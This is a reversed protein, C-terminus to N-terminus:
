RPSSTGVRARSEDLVDRLTRELPIEPQWGTLAQIKGADGWTRPQSNPRFRAPDVSQVIRVPSMAILGDLISQISQTKGSAVNYVQGPEGKAMIQVYARVVDRVDTFDRESSLNGVYITPPRLGAEIEAIQTAFDPVVFGVRQGPGFHNFPRVRLMPLGHSRFYQLAIMEQGVKSVGYPNTPALPTTETFAKEQAVDSDYVEGSSIVLMRPSMELALMALTLNLQPRLNHELTDWPFDLAQRVSAQGALHYIQDPRIEDMLRKVSPEDRLDLVHPIVLPSDVPEIYVGHVEAHPEHAALARVLHAGVFGGVGTILIRM